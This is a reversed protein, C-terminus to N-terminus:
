YGGRGGEGAGWGGVHQEMKRRLRIDVFPSTVILGM